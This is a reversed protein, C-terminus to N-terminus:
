AFASDKHMSDGGGIRQGLNKRISKEFDLMTVSDREERIAFMGAETAIAKIDAGTINDG